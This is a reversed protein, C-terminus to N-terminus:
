DMYIGRFGAPAWLWCRQVGPFIAPSDSVYVFDYLVRKYIIHWTGSVGYDTDNGSVLYYIDGVRQPEVATHLLICSHRCILLYLDTSRLIAWSLGQRWQLRNGSERRSEGGQGSDSSLRWVLGCGTLYEQLIRIGWLVFVGGCGCVLISISPKWVLSEGVIWCPM